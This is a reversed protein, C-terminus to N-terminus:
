AFEKKVKRIRRKKRLYRTRVPKRKRRSLDAASDRLPRASDGAPEGGRWTEGAGTAVGEEVTPVPTVFCKALTETPIGGCVFLIEAQRAARALEEVQWEEPLFVEPQSIHAM